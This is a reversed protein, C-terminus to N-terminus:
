ESGALIPAKIEEQSVAPQDFPPRNAPAPRSPTARRDDRRFTLTQFLPLIREELRQCEAAVISPRGWTPGRRRVPRRKVLWGHRLFFDFGWNKGSRFLM